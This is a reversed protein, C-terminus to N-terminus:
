TIDYANSYAHGGSDMASLSASVCQVASPLAETCSVRGAQSQLVACASGHPEQAQVILSYAQKATATERSDCWQQARAAAPMLAAQASPVLAAQALEAGPRLRRAAALQVGYPVACRILGAHM